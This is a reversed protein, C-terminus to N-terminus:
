CIRTHGAARLIERANDRQALREYPASSTRDRVYPPRAASAPHPAFPDARSVGPVELYRRRRPALPKETPRRPVARIRAREGSM